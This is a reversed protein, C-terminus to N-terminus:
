RSKSRTKKTAPKDRQGTMQNVAMSVEARLNDTAAVAALLRRRSGVPIDLEKLDDDTLEPLVDVDIEHEVFLALYKGMRISKLWVGLDESSIPSDDPKNDASKASFRKKTRTTGSKSAAKKKATKAPKDSSASRPQKKAKAKAKAQKKATTKKTESQSSSTKESADKETQEPLKLEMNSLHLLLIYRDDQVRGELFGRYPISGRRFVLPERGKSGGGVMMLSDSEALDKAMGYLFDYTLGNIHVIQLKNSFLFRTAAERRAIKRGTWTLPIDSDVNPEARQRPRRERLEGDPARVNDFQEIRYVIGDESNVYVRSVGWLFLGCKEIDVEPNDDIMQLALKENDGKHKAILEDYDQEISAQLIKRSSAHNGKKDVLRIDEPVTTSEAKVVADRKRSDTLNINPM